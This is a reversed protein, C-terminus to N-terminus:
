VLWLTLVIVVAAFSVTTAMAIVADEALNARPATRSLASCAACTKGGEVPCRAKHACASHDPM